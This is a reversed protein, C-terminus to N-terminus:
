LAKGEDIYELRLEGGNPTQSTVVKLEKGLTELHEEAICGFFSAALAERLVSKTPM